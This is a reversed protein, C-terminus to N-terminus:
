LLLCEGPIQSKAHLLESALSEKREKLATIENEMAKMTKIQASVQQRLAENAAQSETYKTKLQDRSKKMRELEQSRPNPKPPNPKKTKQRSTQSPVAPVVVDTVPKEKPVKRLKASASPGEDFTSTFMLNDFSLKINPMKGRPARKTPQPRAAQIAKAAAPSPTVPVYPGATTPTTPSTPTTPKIPSPSTSVTPTSVTSVVPNTAMSPDPTSTTPDPQIDFAPASTSSSVLYALESFSTVQTFPGGAAMVGDREMCMTRQLSM